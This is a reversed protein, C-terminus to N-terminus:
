PENWLTRPNMDRILSEIRSEFDAASVSQNEITMSHEIPRLRARAVMRARERVLIDLSDNPVLAYVLTCNMAEAARRLTQLRVTGRTESREIQVLTPQKIGLRKALQATSMGLAERIAKIWGGVPPTFRDVPRWARFRADLNRRAQAARNPTDM